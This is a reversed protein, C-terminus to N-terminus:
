NLKGKILNFFNGSQKIWSIPRSPPYISQALLSCTNFQKGYEFSAVLHTHASLGKNSVLAPLRLTKLDPEADQTSSALLGSHQLMRQAISFHESSKVTQQNGFVQGYIHRPLLRIGFLSKEM